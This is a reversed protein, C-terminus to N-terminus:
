TSCCAPGCTQSGCGPAKGAEGLGEMHGASVLSDGKGLALVRWACVGSLHVFMDQACVNLEPM